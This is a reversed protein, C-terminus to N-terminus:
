LIACSQESGRNLVEESKPVIPGFHKACRMEVLDELCAKQPRLLVKDMSVHLHPRHLTSSGAFLDDGEELGRSWKACNCADSQSRPCDESPACYSCSHSRTLRSLKM